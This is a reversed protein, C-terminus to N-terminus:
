PRIDFGGIAGHAPGVAAEEAELRLAALQLAVRLQGDRIGPADGVVLPALVEEEVRRAGVELPHDGARDFGPVTRRIGAAGVKQLGGVADARRGAELEDGAAM